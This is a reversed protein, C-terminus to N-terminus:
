HAEEASVVIFGVGEGSEGTATVSFCGECADFVQNEDDSITIKYKAMVDRVKTTVIKNIILSEEMSSEGNCQRRVFEVQEGDLPIHIGIAEQKEDEANPFSLEDILLYM